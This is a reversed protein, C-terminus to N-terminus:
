KVTKDGATLDNIVRRYDNNGNFAKNKEPYSMIANDRKIKNVAPLTNTLYNVCLMRSNVSFLMYRSGLSLLALRERSSYGGINILWIPLEYTVM